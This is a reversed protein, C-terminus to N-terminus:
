INVVEDEPEVVITNGTPTIIVNSSPSASNYAGEEYNYEAPETEEDITIFEDGFPNWEPRYNFIDYIKVNYLSAKYNGEFTVTIANDVVVSVRTLKKDRIQHYFDELVPSPNSATLLNHLTFFSKNNVM